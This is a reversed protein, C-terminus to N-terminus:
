RGKRKQAVLELRLYAALRDALHQSLGRKGSMFLSLMAESIGLDKAIRYRSKGSAGVARRLQESVPKAV